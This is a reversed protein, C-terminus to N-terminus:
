SQPQPQPQPQQAMRVEILHSLHSLDVRARHDNELIDRIVEWELPRMQFAQPKLFEVTPANAFEGLIRNATEEGQRQEADQQARRARDEPSLQISPQAPPTPFTPGQSTLPSMSPGTNSISMQRQAHSQVSPSHADASGDFSPPQWENRIVLAVVLIPESRNQSIQQGDLNTIFDPITAPSPAIPVLYTDRINASGKNALVGYRTRTHFYDYMVQFEHAAAEGTPTVNVLVVDTPPSYRLSCLYENAKDQDIRGAIRLDKQLIDAWSLSTTKTIDAGGIHRAVAPFKAISDMNVLGRWIISPDSDYEAPSYPPSEVGDDDALLKDIEPDFGPGNAPPVNGSPRRIHSTNAPGTPSQVSSFVKNIDFDGQTTSQKRPPPKTEINLPQKSTAQGRIDDRSPYENFEPLEVQDGPSNERSRTAMDANPDLEYRRRASTSTSTDNPVAFDDGEIFEEGKHTRRVRPGDDTVMIAQKDSRAKMIATERKLEKNAMDDTSMLALGEPSLKKTLLGNCLEQNHKLNNFLARAQKTGANKDLLRHLADEVQIALREAKAEISDGVSLAYVKAEIARPISDLLGKQVLKAPGQRQTELDIIKVPLSSPPSQPAPHAVKRVKSEKQMTLMNSISCTLVSRVKPTDKDLPEHTSKRKASGARGEKKEKPEPIPTSPSKAKGNTAQSLEQKAGSLRKAKGKKGKKAEEEELQRQEWQRRNDEWPKEGRAVADLLPKHFVPDHQECLYNEPIDEDFTSVGVCINHQWVGCEDCAIWPEEDDPTTELAGCVCRIVEVEEEQAAQKKTAKKTNRRKPAAPVDLLDM